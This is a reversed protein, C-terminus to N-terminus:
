DNTAGGQGTRNLDSGRLEDHAQGVTAGDGRWEHPKRPKESGRRLLTRAPFEESVTLPNVPWIEVLVEAHLAQKTANPSRLWCLTAGGLLAGRV